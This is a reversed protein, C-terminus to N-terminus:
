FGIATTVVVFILVFSLALSEARNGNYYQLAALAYMVPVFTHKPIKETIENSNINGGYRFDFAKDGILIIQNKKKDLTGLVLSDRYMCFNKHTLYIIDVDKATVQLTGLVMSKHNIVVITRPKGGILVESKYMFGVYMRSM